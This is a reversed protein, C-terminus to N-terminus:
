KKEKGLFHPILTEGVIVCIPHNDCNACNFEEQYKDQAKPDPDVACLELFRGFCQCAQGAEKQTCFM